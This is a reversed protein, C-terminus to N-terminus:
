NIEAKLLINKNQQIKEYIETFNEKHEKDHLKDLIREKNKIDEEDLITSVIDEAEVIINKGFFPILEIENFGQIDNVYLTNNCVYFFNNSNGHWAFDSCQKPDLNSSIYYTGLDLSHDGTRREFIYTGIVEKELDFFSLKKYDPALSILKSPRPNILSYREHEVDYTYLAQETGIIIKGANQCIHFDQPKGVFLTSQPSNKFTRYELFDKKQWSELFHEQSQYYIKEILYTEEGQDNIKAITAFNNGDMKYLINLKGDSDTDYHMIKMDDPKEYIDITDELRELNLKQLTDDKLWFISLGDQAWKAEKNNKNIEALVNQTEFSIIHKGAPILDVNEKEEDYDEEKQQIELIAFKKNPSVKLNTIENKEVDISFDFLTEPDNNRFQWFPRHGDYKLIKFNNQNDTNSDSFPSITFISSDVKDTHIIKSPINEQIEYNPTERFMFAELSTSKEPYIEIEYSLDHYGDLWIDVIYEGQPISSVTRSTRGTFNENIYFHSRTPTTNMNLVGTNLIREEDFSFRYGKAYYIIATTSLIILTVICIKTLIKKCRKIHIKKM